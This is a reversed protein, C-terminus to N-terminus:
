PRLALSKTASTAMDVHWLRGEGDFVLAHGAQLRAQPRGSAPWSVQGHVRHTTLSILRWHVQADDHVGAMLWGSGARAQVGRLSGPAVGALASSHVAGM